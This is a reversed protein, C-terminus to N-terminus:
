RERKISILYKYISRLESDTLFYEPMVKSRETSKFNNIFTDYNTVDLSPAYLIKENGKHKYRAIMKGEAKDGHCDNCGIGRPNKYLERGYELDTIFSLDKAHSLLLTIFLISVLRM